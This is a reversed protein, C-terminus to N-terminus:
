PAPKRFVFLLPEYVPAPGHASAEGVIHARLKTAFSWGNESEKALWAAIQECAVKEAAKHASQVLFDGGRGLLDHVAHVLLVARGKGGGLYEEVAEMADFVTLPTVLSGDKLEIVQPM